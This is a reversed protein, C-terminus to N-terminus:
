VNCVMIQPETLASTCVIKRESQPFWSFPFLTRVSRSVSRRIRM